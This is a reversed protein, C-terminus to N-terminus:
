NDTKLNNIKYNIYISGVHGVYGVCTYINHTCACAHYAYAINCGFTDSAYVGISTDTPKATPSQTLQRNITAHNM